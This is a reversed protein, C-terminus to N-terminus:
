CPIDRKHQLYGLHWDPVRAIQFAGDRSSRPVPTLILLILHYGTSKKQELAAAFLEVSIEPRFVM